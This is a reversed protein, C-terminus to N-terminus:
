TMIKKKENSSNCFLTSLTPDLTILKATTVSLHIIYIFMM